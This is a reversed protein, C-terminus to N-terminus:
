PAVKIGEDVIQLNNNGPLELLMMASHGAKLNKAIYQM